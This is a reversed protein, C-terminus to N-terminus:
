IYVCLKQAGASRVCTSRVESGPAGSGGVPCVGASPSVPFGPCVGVGGSVGASAGYALSVPSGKTVPYLGEGSTRSALALACSRVSRCCASSCCRSWSSLFILWSLSESLPFRPCARWSMCSCISSVTLCYRWTQFWIRSMSSALFWAVSSHASASDLSSLACTM